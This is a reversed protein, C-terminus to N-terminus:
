WKVREVVLKVENSAPEVQIELDSTEFTMYRPHLISKARPSDSEAMPSMIVVRHKGLIAGDNDSRTGITFTGDPKVFAVGSMPKDPNDSKLTIVYEALEQGAQEGTKKYVIKGTVPYTEKTCGFCCALLVMAAVQKRTVM